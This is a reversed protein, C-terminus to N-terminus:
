VTKSRMPTSMMMWSQRESHKIPHVIKVVRSVPRRVHGVGAGVFFGKLMLYNAAVSVALYLLQSGLISNTTPM